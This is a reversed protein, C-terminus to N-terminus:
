PPYNRPRALQHLVLIATLLSIASGLLVLTFM